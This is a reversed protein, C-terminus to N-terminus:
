SSISRGRGAPEQTPASEAQQLTHRCLNVIQRVRETTIGYREGIERLTLHEEDRLRLIERARAGAAGGTDATMSAVQRRINARGRLAAHGGAQTPLRSLPWRRRAISDEAMPFGFSIFLAQPEHVASGWGDV